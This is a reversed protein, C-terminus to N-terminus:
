VAAYSANGLSEGKDKIAPQKPYFLGMIIFSSAV